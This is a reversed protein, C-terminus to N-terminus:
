IQYFNSVMKKKHAIAPISGGTHISLGEESKRNQINKSEKGVMKSRALTPGVRRTYSKSDM